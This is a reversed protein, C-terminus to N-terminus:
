HKRLTENLASFRDVLHQTLKNDNRSTMNINSSLKKNIGIKEMYEVRKENIKTSYNRIYESFKGEINGIRSILKDVLLKSDVNMNKLKTEVWWLCWALCFGGFDGSKKNILNNEDSITQFGAFPLYDKPGKYKMGTSWTLEEELVEDIMSDIISTNGYPEFREITMNKFDYVLVNAHLMKDYVLSLFVIAFRKKGERRNSNIINNLYPHIYYSTPSYYNIIWPFVPVKSIIDDSFPFSDDFTLDELLYSPVNPILLENYTDALYLTFIGVDTFKAQFLTGYSYDYKDIIINNTDEIYEPLTKYLELWKKNESKFEMNKRIKIKNKILIPSYIDYDLFLLMHFPSVKNINMQNWSISDCRNLIEMDVMLNVDSIKSMQNRNIRAFLMTLLINDMYKNITHFIDDGKLSGLIKKTYINRNNLIDSTVAKSLPSHTKIFTYYFTDINRSLLYDTLMSDDKEISSLILGEGMENKVNIEDDTFKDLLKIKQEIKLNMNNIIAFLYQTNQEPRLKYLKIFELLDASKLNTLIGKLVQNHIATGDEILDIWNLDPFNRIVKTIEEFPIYNAFTERDSNRNYIYDPYTNILYALIDYNYEKAAIHFGNLNDNNEIYVPFRILKLGDLNGLQILYHFLYNNQFIPKNIDFEELQSKNKITIIKKFDIKM